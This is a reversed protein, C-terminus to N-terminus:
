KTRVFVLLVFETNKSITTILTWGDLAEQNLLGELSVEMFADWGRVKYEM